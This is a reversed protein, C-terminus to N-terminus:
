GGLGDNENEMTYFLDRCCTKLEKALKIAVAQKATKGYVSASTDIVPTQYLLAKLIIWVFRRGQATTMQDVIDATKIMQLLKQEEEYQQKDARGISERIM